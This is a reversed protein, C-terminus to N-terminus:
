AAAAKREALVREVEPLLEQIMEGRPTDDVWNLFLRPATEDGLRQGARRIVDAFFGEVAGVVAGEAFGMWCFSVPCGAECPWHLVTTLPPPQTTAGQLLRKDDTRLAEALAELGATPLLPAFGERWVKRWSEISDNM